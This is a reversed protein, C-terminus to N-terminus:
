KKRNDYVKKVYSSDQIGSAQREYRLTDGKDNTKELVTPGGNGPLIEHKYGDNGYHGGLTTGNNDGPMTEFSESKETNNDDFLKEGLTEGRSLGDIFKSLTTVPNIKPHASSIGVLGLLDDINLTEVNEKTWFPNGEGNISVLRMGGNQLNNMWCTGLSCKFAGVKENIKVAYTGEKDINIHMEREIDYYQYIGTQVNFRGKVDDSVQIRIQVKEGTKKNDYFITLYETNGDPDNFILPNSYFGKYPSWSPQTHSQADISLWRGIRSDYMRAGFDYSNGEGKVEDDREMSNFAYRYASHSFHSNKHTNSPTIYM